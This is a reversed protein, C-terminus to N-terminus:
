FNKISLFFFYVEDSEGDKQRIDITKRTKSSQVVPSSQPSQQQLHQHHQRLQRDLVMQNLSSRNILNRIARLGKLLRNVTQHHHNNQNHHPLHQQQGSGSTGPASSSTSNENSNDNNNNNNNNGLLLLIPAISEAGTTASSSADSM